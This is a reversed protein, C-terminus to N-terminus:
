AVWQSLAKHAKPVVSRGTTKVYEVYKTFFEEWRLEANSNKLILTRLYELHEKESHSIDMLYEQRGLWNRLRRNIGDLSGNDKVYELIEEYSEVFKPSRTLISPESPMAKANTTARKSSCGCM